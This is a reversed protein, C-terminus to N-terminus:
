LMHEANLLCSKANRMQAVVVAATSSGSCCSGIIIDNRKSQYIYNINLQKVVVGGHLIQWCSFSMMLILIMPVKSCRM